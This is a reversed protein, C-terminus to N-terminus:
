VCDSSASNCNSYNFNDPKDERHNHEALNGRLRISLVCEKIFSPADVAGFHLIPLPINIAPILIVLIHLFRGLDDILLIKKAIISELYNLQLM